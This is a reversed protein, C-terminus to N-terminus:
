ETVQFALFLGADIRQGAEEGAHIGDVAPQHLVHRSFHGGVGLRNAGLDGAHGFHKGRDIRLGGRFFLDHSRDEHGKQAAHGFVHFVYGDSTEAEVREEAATTVYGHALSREGDEFDHSAVVGAFRGRRGLRRRRGGGNIRQGIGQPHGVVVGGDLLGDVGGCGAVQDQDARAGVVLGDDDLGVVDDDAAGVAVGHDDVTLVLALVPEDDERVADRDLVEGAM